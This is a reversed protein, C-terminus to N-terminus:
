SAKSRASTMNKAKTPDFLTPYFGSHIDKLGSISNPIDTEKFHLSCIRPDILGM